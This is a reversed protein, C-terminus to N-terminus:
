NNENNVAENIVKWLEDYGDGKESSFAIVDEIDLTKKILNIADERQSPKLKDKKTAVVIPFFGNQRIWDFMVIDEQSPKHRIDVLQIILTLNARSILYEEIMMGWKEKETKSVKAFGYGPLDVLNFTDDINYFNITATKGPSASVRALKKRSLLKNILSSKGVNSRGALAVDPMANAPYQAKRVASITISVNNLNM